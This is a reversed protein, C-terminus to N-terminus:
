STAAPPPRTSSRRSAPSRRAAAEPQLEASGTAFTVDSKFKVIGRASDFDVLDPNQKAFETLENNLPEPLVM